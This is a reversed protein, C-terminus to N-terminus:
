PDKKKDVQRLLQFQAQVRDLLQVGTVKSEGILSVMYSGRTAVVRQDIVSYLVEARLDGEVQGQSSRAAARLDLIALPVAAEPAMGRFSWTSEWQCSIPSKLEKADIQFPILATWNQGVHVGQPRFLPWLTGLWASCIEQRLWLSGQEPHVSLKQLGGRQGSRVEWRAQLLDKNTKQEWSYQISEIQEVKVQQLWEHGAKQGQLFLQGKLAAETEPVPVDSMQATGGRLQRGEQVKLELTWHDPLDRGAHVFHTGVWPLYDYYLWM